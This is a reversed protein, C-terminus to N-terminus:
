DTMHGAFDPYLLTSRFRNKLRRERQWGPVHSRRAWAAACADLAEQVTVHLHPPLRRMLDDMFREAENSAPSVGEDEAEIENESLQEIVARLVLSVDSGPM